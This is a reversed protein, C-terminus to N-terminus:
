SRRVILRGIEHPDPFTAFQPIDDRIEFWKAMSETNVHAHPRIQLEDDLSSVVLCLFGPERPQNFVPSACTGCFHRVSGQPTVFRSPKGSSSSWRFADRAVIAVTTFASGHVQRCFRCHCNFTFGLDGDLEYILNRCRCGGTRVM